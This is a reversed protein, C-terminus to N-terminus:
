ANMAIQDPNPMADLMEQADIPNEVREDLVIRGDRFRVIRKCHRAIEEEHTVIVVTKGERNLSQFLAMIEEGTRSDLNGTPEDGLILVPNTVIARAIAVRQQQGGSLENPKHHMRQALGVQELAKEAVKSRGKVGAYMLPLEVNKLASTRPLLNYQQFVFGIFKNRIEALNSEALQAVDQGNLFYQGRTPRDLCGLVNLFTSKGSGSPGMIAVFEGQEIRFSVDRLAHVVMDGTSYDKCLDKVEVVTSAPTSM